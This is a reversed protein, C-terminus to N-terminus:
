FDQLHLARLRVRLINGAGRKTWGMGRNKMRQGVVVGVTREVVGSGAVHPPLRRGARRLRREAFLWDWRPLVYHKLENLAGGRKRLRRRDADLQWELRERKEGLLLTLTRSADELHDGAYAERTQRVVHAHDLQHWAMPFMESRITELAPAGDSAYLVTQADCVNHRAQATVFFNEGFAAAGEVSSVVVKDTLTRRTGRQRKGGYALGLYVEHSRAREQWAHVLTSDAELGVFERPPLEAGPLEGDRFFAKRKAEELKELRAGEAQTWAWLTGVSPVEGRLWAMIQRAKDYSPGLAAVAACAERAQPTVGGCEHLGTRLDFLLFSREEAPHLYRLREIRVLGAMTWLWRGERGKRRLTGGHQQEATAEVQQVFANWAQTPFAAWAKTVAAEIGNVNLDREPIEIMTTFAVLMAWTGKKQHLITKQYRPGHVM